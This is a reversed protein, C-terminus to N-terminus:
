VTHEMLPFLLHNVGLESPSEDGTGTPNLYWQSVMMQMALQIDDDILYAPHGDPLDEMESPTEFLRCYYNRQISRRAAGILQTLLADHESFDPELRLQAKIEDLTPKM